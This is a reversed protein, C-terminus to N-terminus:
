TASYRQVALITKQPASGLNPSNHMPEFRAPKAQGLWQTQFSHSFSLGDGSRHSWQGNPSLLSSALQPSQEELVRHGESGLVQTGIFPGSSSSRGHQLRAGLARGSM